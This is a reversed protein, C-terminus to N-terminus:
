ESELHPSADPDFDSGFYKIYDQTNMPQFSHLEFVEGTFPNAILAVGLHEYILIQMHWGYFRSGEEISTPEGHQNKFQSITLYGAASKDSPLIISEFVAKNNKTIISHPRIDLTSNFYNEISGDEREKKEVLGPLNEIENQTTEGIISKQIPSAKQVSQSTNPVPTPYIGTLDPSTKTEERTLTVFIIIVLSVLIM